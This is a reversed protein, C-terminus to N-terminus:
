LEKVTFRGYRTTKRYKRWSRLGRLKQNDWSEREFYKHTALVEGQESVVASAGAMFKLLDLKISELERGYSKKRERVNCYLLVAKWLASEPEAVISGDVEGHLAEYDAVTVPEPPYDSTVCGWFTAVSEEIREWVSSEAGFPYFRVDRDLWAAVDWNPMGTVLMYAQSQIYPADPVEESGSEGWRKDWPRATKIEVGRREGVVRRDIHCYLPLSNHWYTRTDRRLRRGTRKTYVRAVNDELSLCIEGFEGLDRPSRRGTKELWVDVPTRYPDLGMIAAVESGGVGLERGKSDAPSFQPKGKM